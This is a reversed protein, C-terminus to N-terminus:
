RKKKTIKKMWTDWIAVITLGAYMAMLNDLPVRYKTYGAFLTHMLTYVVLITIPLWVRKDRRRLMIILGIFGGFIVIASAIILSYLALAVKVPDNAFPWPAGMKVSPTLGPQWFTKAKLLQLAFGERLWNDHLWASGQKKWHDSFEIENAPGLESCSKSEGVDRVPEVPHWSADLFTSQISEGESELRIRIDEPIVYREYVPNTSSSIVAITEQPYGHRTLEYINENNAKAFGFGLDTTLPVFTHFARWNRYTWPAILGASVIAMILAAKFTRKWDFRWYWLLWFVIFPTAVLITGQVYALAAISFGAGFAYRFLKTKALKILFYVLLLLFLSSLFTHYYQTYHYFTYPYCAMLFAGILAARKGVLYKGAAYVLWLVLVVIVNQILAHALTNDPSIFTYLGTLYFLFGPSRYASLCGLENAFTYGLGQFFSNVLIFPGDDRNLLSDHFLFASALRSGIAFIIFAFIWLDFRHSVERDRPEKMKEWAKKQSSQLEAQSPLAKVRERANAVMWDRREGEEIVEKIATALTEANRSQVVRGDVQPRFLSGVCGIDTTIIPIGAAMAEVITRGWGEYNSSMVFLDANKWIHEPSSWPAISVIDALGLEHISERIWAELKGSGYLKVRFKIGSKQLRVFAQLATDIGKQKVFRCPMVITPIDQWKKNPLDLLGSIDQYVPIVSIRSEDIKCRRMVHEKVRESVVRVHDARRLIWKVWFARIEHIVPFEHEWAGGFYDAHEQMEFPINLLRSVLFALKGAIFPDQATVLSPKSKLGAFFACWLRRLVNGNWGRVRVRDSLEANIDSPLASLLIIELDFKLHDAFAIQRRAPVSEPKLLERDYGFVLVKM